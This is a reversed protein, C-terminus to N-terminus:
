GLLKQYIRAYTDVAKDLDYYAIAANRIGAHDFDDTNNIVRTVAGFMENESFGNIVIGSRHSAILEALDGVGGNTILPIGMAMIEGHKTPSSSIKSYCPKIFFFSYSSLSLLIPVDCRDAKVTIVKDKQIGAKSAEAMIEAHRHPSIFLFKAKPMQTVVSKCFAMMEATLYWGGISGLYSFIIDGPHIGLQTAFKQKQIEPISIPNFLKTDVSCPIVDIALQRGSFKNWSLMERKAAHTLCTIADAKALCELEHKKFFNYVKKYIPNTLNWMGGDVREDAWFGRVDNFFLLGYKRKLYLAVLTPLGPRTHVMSYHHIEHLQIAKKRLQYVDWLSSFVPPNKHYPISVWEIPLGQLLDKIHDKKQEFHRAKDCSLITFSYGHRTLETLYPIVQSEGLPDTMGDYSIFLIKKM